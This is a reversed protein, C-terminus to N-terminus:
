EVGIQELIGGIGGHPVVEVQLKSIKGNKFSVTAHEEPLSVVLGTAPIPTSHKFPLILDTSHTGTIQVTVEVDQGIEEASSLNYNWDPFATQVAMQFNLWVDRDYPDPTPGIFCFDESILSTVVSWDKSEIAKFFDRAQDLNSM